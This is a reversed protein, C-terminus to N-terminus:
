SGITAKSAEEIDFSLTIKLCTVHKSFDFSNYNACIKMFVVESARFNRKTNNNEIKHDVMFIRATAGALPRYKHEAFLNQHLGLRKIPLIM